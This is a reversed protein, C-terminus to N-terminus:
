RQAGLAGASSPRAPVRYQDITVTYPERLYRDRGNPAMLGSLQRQLEQLDVVREAAGVFLLLQGKHRIPRAAPFQQGLIYERAIQMLEAGRSDDKHTLALVTYKNSPRALARDPAPLSGVSIGPNGVPNLTDQAATGASLGSGNANGGSMSDRTIPMDLRASNGARLESEGAGTLADDSGEIPGRGALWGLAFSLGLLAVLVTLFTVGGVPLVLGDEVELHSEPGVPALPQPASPPPAGSSRGAAPATQPVRPAQAEPAQSGPARVAHAGTHASQAQTAQQRAAGAQVAEHPAKARKPQLIPEDVGSRTGAGKSGVGAKQRAQARRADDAAAAERLERARREAEASARFAELMNDRRKPM